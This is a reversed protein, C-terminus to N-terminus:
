KDITIDGGDKTTVCKNPCQTGLTFCYKFSTGPTVDKLTLPQYSVPKLKVCDGEQFQDAKDFWFSYDSSALNVIVLSDHDSKSLHLDRGYKLNGGADILILLPRQKALTTTKKQAIAAPGLFTAGLLLGLAQRRNKRAMPPLNIEPM